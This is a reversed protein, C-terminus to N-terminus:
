LRSIQHHHLTHQRDKEKRDVHDLGTATTSEFSFQRVKKRGNLSPPPEGVPFQGRRRKALHQMLTPKRRKVGARSHGDSLSGDSTNSSTARRRRSQLSRRNRREKEKTWARARMALKETGWAPGAKVSYGDDTRISGVRSRQQNQIPSPVPTRAPSLTAPDVAETNNRWADVHHDNRGKVMQTYAPTVSPAQTSIVSFHSSDVTEVEQGLERLQRVADRYSIEARTLRKTLRQSERIAKTDLEQRTCLTNAEIGGLAAASGSM